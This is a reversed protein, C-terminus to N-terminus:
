KDHGNRRVIWGFLGAFTGLKDLKARNNQGHILTIDHVYTTRRVSQM